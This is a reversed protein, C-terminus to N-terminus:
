DHGHHHHRRGHDREVVRERVVVRKPRPREHVVVVREQTHRPPGAYAYCSPLVSAILGFMAANRLISM